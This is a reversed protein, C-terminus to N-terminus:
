ATGGTRPDPTPCLRVPISVRPRRPGEEHVRDAYCRNGAHISDTLGCSLVQAQTQQLHLYAGHTDLWRETRAVFDCEEGSLPGGLADSRRVIRDAVPLLESLSSLWGHLLLLAVGPELASRFLVYESKGDLRHCCPEGGRLVRSAARWDSGDRWYEVLERFLDHDLGNTWGHTWGPRRGSLPGRVRALRERLEHLAAELGPLKAFTQAPCNM